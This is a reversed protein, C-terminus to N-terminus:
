QPSVGKCDATRHPIIYAHKTTQPDGAARQHEPDPLPEEKAMCDCIECPDLNCGCYPCEHYYPM